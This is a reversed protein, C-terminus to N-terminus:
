PTPLRALNHNTLTALGFSSVIHGPRRGGKIM